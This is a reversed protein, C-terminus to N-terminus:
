SIKERTEYLYVLLLKSHPQIQQKKIIAITTIKSITDSKTNYNKLNKDCNNNSDHKFFLNSLNGFM